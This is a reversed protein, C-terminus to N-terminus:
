NQYNRIMTLHCIGIAIADIADDQRLSDKEFDLLKEVMFQVQLKTAKGNGFISKKIQTPSYHSINIKEQQIEKQRIEAQGIAAIMAGKAQLVEAATKVNKTFFIKELAVSHYINQKLLTTISNYIKFIRNELKEGSFTTITGYEKLDIKNSKKELIAFGTIALGPDLALIKM